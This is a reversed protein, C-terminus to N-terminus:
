ESDSPVRWEFQSLWLSDLRTRLRPKRSLYEVKHQATRWNYGRVRATCWNEDRPGRLEILMSSKLPWGTLRVAPSLKGALTQYAARREDVTKQELGSYFVHEDAADFFDMGNM